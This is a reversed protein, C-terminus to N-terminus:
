CGLLLAVVVYYERDMLQVFYMLFVNIMSFATVIFSTATFLPYLIDSVALSCTFYNPGKQLAKNTKVIYLVSTSNTLSLIMLISFGVTILIENM